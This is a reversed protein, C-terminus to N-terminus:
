SRHLVPLNVAAGECHLGPSFLKRPPQHQVNRNIQNPQSCNEWWNVDGTVGGVAELEFEDRWHGGCGGDPRQTRRGRREDAPEHGLRGVM